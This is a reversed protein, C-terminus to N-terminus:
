SNGARKANKEPIRLIYIFGIVMFIAESLLTVRYAWEGYGSFIKLMLGWFLVGVIASVYAVLNFLAFVEGTKDAPVLEIALARSVVWTSGLALGTIAGVPFYYAPNRVFAAGAFCGIWLVFLGDFARRYGIYDSIFGSFASGAIAFFTSFIILNVVDAEPMAFVRTAYISMYLIVANVACLCFFSAKLFDSLGEIRRAEMIMVRVTRVIKRVRGKRTFDSFKAGPKHAADKVFLLCPLSFVLFLIGTPLFAAQYGSKLVIPKFIYVAIVAGFYSFMKGIGSILGSKGKPTIDVMMANYFVTATQCGFNAIAFFLLALFMNNAGLFMTFIVSILTLLVLWPRRKGTLDSIIGLVLGFAAVFLTSVGFSVSFYIEPVQKEITVWRVFYLSVINLAFFQNALDYMAWSVILGVSKLKKVNM